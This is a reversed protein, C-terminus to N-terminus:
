YHGRFCLFLFAIITRLLSFLYNLTIPYKKYLYYYYYTIYDGRM